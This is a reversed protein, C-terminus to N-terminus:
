SRGRIWRARYLETTRDFRERASLREGDRGHAVDDRGMRRVDVDTTEGRVTRWRMRVSGHGDYLYWSKVGGRDMAILSDGGRASPTGVRGDGRGRPIDLQETWWCRIVARARSASATGKRAAVTGEVAVNAGEQM